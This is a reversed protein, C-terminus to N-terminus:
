IEVNIEQFQKVKNKSCRSGKSIVGKKSLEKFVMDSICCGTINCSALM